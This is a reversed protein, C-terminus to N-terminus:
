FCQTVLFVIVTAIVDIVERRRVTVYETSAGNAYATQVIGVKLNREADTGALKTKLVHAILIAIKDGDL